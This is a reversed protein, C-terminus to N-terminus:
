EADPNLSEVKLDVTYKGDETPGFRNRFTLQLRAEAAITRITYTAFRPSKGDEDVDLQGAGKGCATRIEAVAADFIQRGRKRSDGTYLDASIKTGLPTRLLYTRNAGPIPLTPTEEAFGFKQKREVLPRFGVAAAAAYSIVAHALSNPRLRSPRDQLRDACTPIPVKEGVYSASVLASENEPDAVLVVRRGSPAKYRFQLDVSQQGLPPLRLDFTQAAELRYDPEVADPTESFVLATQRVEIARGGINKIRLRVPRGQAIQTGPDGAVSRETSMFALPGLDEFTLRRCQRLSWAWFPETNDQSDAMVVLVPRRALLAKARPLDGASQGVWGLTAALSATAIVADNATLLSMGYPTHSDWFAPPRIGVAQALPTEQPIQDPDAIHDRAEFILHEAIYTHTRAVLDDFREEALAVHAPDLFAEALVAGALNFAMCQRKEDLSRSPAKFLDAPMEAVLGRAAERFQFFLRVFPEIDANPQGINDDVLRLDVVLRRGQRHTRHQNQYVIEDPVWGPVRGQFGVVKGAIPAVPETANVGAPVVLVLLALLASTRGIM